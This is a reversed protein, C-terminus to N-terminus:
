LIPRSGSDASTVVGSVGTEDVAIGNGGSNTSQLYQTGSSSRPSTPQTHGSVVGPGFQCHLLSPAGCQSRPLNSVPLTAASSGSAKSTPNSRSGSCQSAALADAGPTWSSHNIKGNSGTGLTLLPPGLSLSGSPITVPFSATSGQLAHQQQHHLQPSSHHQQPQLPAPSSNAQHAKLQPPQQQTQQRLGPQQPHTSLQSGSSHHHPQFAPSQLFLQRQMLHTQQQSLSQQNHMQHIQQSNIHVQQHHYQQHTPTSTQPPQSPSQQVSQPPQQSAQLHHQSLNQQQQCLPQNQSPQQHSKTSTTQLSTPGLIASVNPGSSPTSRKAPVTSSPRQSVPFSGKSSLNNKAAAPVPKAAPSLPRLPSSSSTPLGGINGSPLRPLPGTNNGVQNHLRSQQQQVGQQSKAIAAALVAQPATGTPTPLSGFSGRNSLKLQTHQQTVQGQRPIQGGQTLSQGPLAVKSSVSSGLPPRDSFSSLQSPAATVAGAVALSKSRPVVQKSNQILPLSHGTQQLSGGTAHGSPRSILIASTSALSNLAPGANSATRGSPNGGSTPSLQSAASSDLDVRSLTLGSGVGRKPVNREETTERGSKNPYATGEAIARDDEGGTAVTVGRQMPMARLQQQGPPVSLKHSQVSVSQLNQSHQHQGHGRGSEAISQLVAHGQPAMVPAVPALGLPGPGITSARTLFTHSSQQDTDKLSTHVAAGTSGHQQQLPSLTQSGLQNQQLHKPPKGGLGHIFNFDQPQLGHMSASGGLMMSSSPSVLPTVGSSGDQSPANGQLLPLKSDNTSNSEPLNNGDREVLRQIQQSTAVKTHQQQSLCPSPSSSVSQPQQQSISPQFNRAGHQPHPLENSVLGAAVNACKHVQQQTHTPTHVLHTAYFPSSFYQAAQQHSTSFGPGFQPAAQFPFPFAGQQMVAQLYQAQATAHSVVGGSGSGTGHGAVTTSGSTPVSSLSVLASGGGSELDGLTGGGKVVATAVDVATGVQAVPFGFGPRAQLPMNPSIQLPQQLQQLVQKRCVAEVYGTDKAQANTTVSSVGLNKDHGSASGIGPRSGGGTVVNEGIASSLGGLLGGSSGGFLAEVPTLPFNLNYSKSGFLTASNQYAAQIFPHRNMQQQADIFHAIYVHSACRKWPQPQHAQILYPQQVAPSMNEDISALGSAPSEGPWSVNAAAAAAAGSSFYAVSPVGLPWGAMGVSLPLTAVSSSVSTGGNSVGSLTSQLYSSATSTTAVSAAPEFNLTNSDLMLAKVSKRDPPQIGFEARELETEFDRDKSLATHNDESTQREREGADEAVPEKGREREWYAQEKHTEKQREKDVQIDEAPAASPLCVKSHTELKKTTDEDSVSSSYRKGRELSTLSTTGSASQFVPEMEQVLVAQPSGVREPELVLKQNPTPTENIELSASSSSVEVNRVKESAASLKEVSKCRQVSAPSSVASLDLAKHICPPTMSAPCTIPPPSRRAGTDVKVFNEDTSQAVNNLIQGSQLQPYPSSFVSSSQAVASIGPSAAQSVLMAEDSRAKFRPRKRKPAEAPPVVTSLSPSPFPPPVIMASDPLTAAASPPATYIATPRCSSVAPPPNTSGSTSSVCVTAMSEPVSSDSPLLCPAGSVDTSAKPEFKVELPSNPEMDTKSSHIKDVSDELLVSVPQSTFMRALDFLAEAVEVEQESIMTQTSMKSAKSARAKSSIPKTRRGPKMSVVSSSSPANSPAVASPIPSAQHSSSEVFSVSSVEQPRKLIATRAKRPVAPLDASLGDELFKGQPRLKVARRPIPPPPPDDDDDSVDMETDETTEDIDDVTNSRVQDHVEQSGQRKRKSRSVPASGSPPLGQVLHSTSNEKKPRERLRPNHVDDVVEDGDEGVSADKFGITRPRRPASVAGGGAGARRGERGREM